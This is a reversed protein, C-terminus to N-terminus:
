LWPPAAPSAAHVVGPLRPVPRDRPRAPPRRGQLALRERARRGCALGGELTRGAGTMGSLGDVVVSEPDIAGRLPGLALLTATAYCGPNAILPGTEGVLEPLGYVWGELGAPHPHTFGYWAEYLAADRLRHAGSLDVVIRGPPVDIQAAADHSLCVITVDAEHELAEANTSFPPTGTGALRPDLASSPRGALSDSGIAVLTLDPHRLVRDLTEQGTYGAAGVISVSAMNCLICVARNRHLRNGEGLREPNRREVPEPM